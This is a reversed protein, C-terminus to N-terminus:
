RPLVCLTLNDPTAAPCTRRQNDSGQMDFSAGWFILNPAIDLIALVDCPQPPTIGEPTSNTFLLCQGPALQNLRAFPIKLAYLSPDSIPVTLGKQPTFNNYVIVGNLTMWRDPSQNIIALSNSTYAFYIYDTVDGGTTGPVYFECRGTTSVPCVARQIGNQNLAFRTTGGAGTWFHEGPNTTILWNQINSCEPLGKSGNRGVSWLQTCQGARLSSSWRAGSFGALNGDLASFTLGTLDMMVGTNNVLTLDNDDYILIANPTRLVNVDVPSGTPLTQGAAVSQGKVANQAFGSEATWLEGTESGLTLGARNLVAAAQPVTLGTLDPVAVADQAYAIRSFTFSTFILIMLIKTMM